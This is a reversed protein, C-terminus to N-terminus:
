RYLNNEALSNNFWQIYAKLKKELQEKVGLKDTIPLDLHALDFLKSPGHIRYELYYGKHAMWYDGNRQGLELGDDALDFISHGFPLTKATPIGLYDLTSPGIDVHQTIRTPNVKPLRHGPHFFDLPVRYGDILRPSIAKPPGIHDGTIIIFLIRTGRCRKAPRM